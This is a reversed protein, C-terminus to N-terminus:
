HVRTDTTNGLRGNTRRINRFLAKSLRRWLQWSGVTSTREVEKRQQMVHNLTHLADYKARLLTSADGRWLSRVVGILNVVIHAPLTLVLLGIPMNKVYVRIMNRHGYYLRFAVNDRTSEGGVHWVVADPVYRCRRGMRRLRFSLDVDELYCFLDEDFGGLSRLTDFRYLGAGACVGFVEHGVLHEPRLQKGHGARWALGSIHYEDGMGDVIDDTGEIMMRSAFADFEPYQEAARVLEALWEPEPFADPNLLAVLEINGNRALIEFAQNNAAAFGTNENNRIVELNHRNATVVEPFGQPSANDIVLTRTPQLTQKGLADLCAALTVASNNYTVIVVAVNV